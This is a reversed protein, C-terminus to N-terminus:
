NSGMRQRLEEFWNTVVIFREPEAAAGDPTASVGANQGVIVRDGDPHLDSAPRYYNGTFLPDRSLVMPTPERQLRAAMFEDGGGGGVGALTWYYVTNGDPSWFPYRGGGRSVQAQAGPDPFSRIYVESTGTEDSSYAALTGDRSVVIDTLLAESPLYVEATPSDPDSLNLIWLDSPNGSEFVILTDSPWQTPYQNRTLTILSREPADDELTKVFLDRGDTEERASAFVVRTGDPSFVPRGNIGQFTLQRPTTGLEVDYTYIDPDSDGEATSGYVVSRGDPSWKVADIDRPTLVLPDENGQELDVVLLRFGSGAGVGAGAGYVLTGNRSVSYRAWRLSGVVSLGDLVPVPDGVVEGRGVNFEVAWLGGALDAYLLHGTEAYMADVGGPILEIVSDTRLDLLYTSFTSVDTFIVAQGGPLLRPNRLPRSELLVEPEGGTDPVRYLGGPGRLTFVITGDDGWHNDGPAPGSQVVPRPAGGSIAVRLLAQGDTYALWESDPSFSVFRVDGETGPILRLDEEAADRWFLALQGDVRGAIAFRSGDPSVIIENQSLLTIEGFDVVARTPQLVRQPRLWGWAALTSTTVAVLLAAVVRRDRNWPRATSVPVMPESPTTVSSTRARAEYTFSPDALAAAFEAASTFRDAPLKELAQALAHGVHPPVTRRESTISPADATLIKVLVAQATTASFPPQGALMEFLVCGLAYVDSRPDVDRDGTAQEPSM